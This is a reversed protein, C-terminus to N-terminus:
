DDEDHLLIARKESFAVSPYTKTITLARGDGKMLKVRKIQQKSLGLYSELLYKLAKGGLSRLFLTISHSENLIKKTQHGNCATHSTFIISINKHRGTELCMEAITQIKTRVQKDSICDCDDFIILSNEFDSISWDEDLFEPDAIQVRKLNKISDVSPDEPISSFLYIANKKHQKTYEECYQKAFFSKGSGSAGCIYLIQREMETNPVLQFSQTSPLKIEKHIADGEEIKDTVHLKKKTGNIRAVLAGNSEFNM